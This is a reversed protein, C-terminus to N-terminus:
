PTKGNPHLATSSKITSGGLPLAQRVGHWREVYYRRATEHALLLNLVIVMGVLARRAASVDHWVVVSLGISVPLLYRGQFTYGAVSLYRYEGAFTAAAFLLATVGFFWGM